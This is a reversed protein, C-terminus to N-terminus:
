ANYLNIFKKLQDPTGTVVVKTSYDSVEHKCEAREATMTVDELQSENSIGTFTINTKNYKAKM